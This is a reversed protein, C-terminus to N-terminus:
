DCDPVKEGKTNIIIKEGNLNVKCRGKYFRDYYDVKTYIFPIVEKGTKDIFGWKGNLKVAALGEKFKGASEYLFLFLLM